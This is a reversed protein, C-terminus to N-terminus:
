VDIKLWMRAETINLKRNLIEEECSFSIEYEDHGLTFDDNDEGM